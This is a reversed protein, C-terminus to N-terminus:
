LKVSMMAHCPPISHSSTSSTLSHLLSQVSAHHINLRLSPSTCALIECTIISRNDAELIAWSVCGYCAHQTDVQSPNKRVAHVGMCHEHLPARSYVGGTEDVRDLRCNDAVRKGIELESNLTFPPAITQSLLLHRPTCSLRVDDSARRGVVALTSGQITTQRARRPLTCPASTFM